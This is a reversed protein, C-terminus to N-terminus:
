RCMSINLATLIATPAFLSPTPIPLIIMALVITDATLSQPCNLNQVQKDPNLYAIAPDISDINQLM